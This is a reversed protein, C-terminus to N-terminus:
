PVVDWRLMMAHDEHVTNHCHMIYKGVFDSFRLVIRVEEGPALVYVDKRGKEHAPPQRGNRSLIRGETAHIHVPHWWGGKGILVWIETTGRKITAVSRTVDFIRGNVTWVLNNRDFEFVRTRVVEKLDIPALERLLSPVRSNDVTSPDSDVDFRLLQPGRSSLSEKPGRGDTQLLRNVIYLKTGIPYKSFDVVIDGREAPSLRVKKMQLPATLLNGDNAIYDFTQDGSPGTLFFEYFRSSSGNLLRFRYKRREVKFYPQIKGNVCVKNGLIGDMNFQDFTLNGSADFMKDQFVLPIDYKGVGSPLRLAKPNPDNENGSDLEDFLLYFGALGKYVNPATFDMRHDHYWLTGLAERPEGDTDPYKEHDAFCNPYHHDKFSGPRTLTPGCKEASYWDGPFGDSESPGHLNHLHTSIEPSGYGIHTSSSPLSNKIRVLVPEGYRAVFTPGPVIGDYGWITEEPLQPHFQHKGAKVDLEYTKKPGHGAWFQHKDRGSEGEIPYEGPPPYLSATEKPQYVPLPVAWPTLAPRPAMGAEDYEDVADKASTTSAAVLGYGAAVSAGIKLLNRRSLVSERLTEGAVSKDLQKPQIREVSKNEQEKFFDM